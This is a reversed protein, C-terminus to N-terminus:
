PTILEMQAFVQGTFNTVVYKARECIFKQLSKRSAQSLDLGLPISNIIQVVDAENLQGLQELASKVHEPLVFPVFEPFLGYIANDNTLDDWDSVDNPSDLSICHSHDIVVLEYKASNGIQRLLYNDSNLNAYQPDYRDYNRLWTDFIVLKSIDQVNSLKSLMKGSVDRTEAILYKSGFIPAEFIQNTKGLQIKLNISDLVCFDPVKLGFWKGLEACLIESVIAFKGAPNNAAKLIAKGEDTDALCPKTSSDFREIERFIIKPSFNQSCFLM